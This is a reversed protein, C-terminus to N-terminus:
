FLAITEQPVAQIRIQADVARVTGEGFCPRDHIKRGRLAGNALRRRRSGSQTPRPTGCCNRKRELLYEREQRGEPPQLGKSVVGGSILNDGDTLVFRGMTPIRDHSDLVLPGRTQLTVEGVENVRLATADSDLTAADVVKGLAVVQCEVDQTALKLRYRSSISLPETGLWFVRRIGTIL